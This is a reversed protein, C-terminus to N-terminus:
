PSDTSKVAKLIVFKKNNAIVQCNGFLRKLKVHYNLHRNGIVWLEGKFKLCKKSECFMQWAIHDGVTHQQHFPPNNLILDASSEKIGQLCDTTFFSAQRNPLANQFNVKASEIAMYSEDVFILKAQPNKIAAMLGIVGNGCGMDVITQAQTGSPLHELLFRSGIDLSSQSFVNAHNHLNIKTNELPWVKPFPNKRPRLSSAFQPFVLRAKKKALSTSTPGIISEFLKLTSSHIHKAMAAGIIHTTENLFPRLRHLQDELMALAKPIKIIVLDFDRQPPQLSTLQTVQAHQRQNITLNHELGQFALYSDSQMQPQFEALAVSLAGFQDNIILPSPHTELSHTEFLHNLVYEDAADWARLSDKARVPYRDLNFRGFPSHLTEM